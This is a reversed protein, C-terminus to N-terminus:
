TNLCNNDFDDHVNLFSRVQHEVLQKDFLVPSKAGNPKICRVYHPEKSHITKMLALMSNKFLTGATLPRKTTKTIHEAGEPWMSKLFNNKSNFLLRKFDQFLTDRNKEIFGAITYVVDGAYHKILFDESHSLMKNMPDTRRSSYHNHTKLKRDMEELLTADTVKGVNLCAEDMTAIIGKHQQEILQCIVVNNFYEIHEWQIGERQYEEQEQQLM